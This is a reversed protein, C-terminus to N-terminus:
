LEMADLQDILADLKDRPEATESSDPAPVPAAAGAPRQGALLLHEDRERAAVDREKL